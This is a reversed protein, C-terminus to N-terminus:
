ILKVEIYTIKDGTLRRFDKLATSIAEESTTRLYQAIMTYGNLARIQVRFSM